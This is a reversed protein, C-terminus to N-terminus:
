RTVEMWRRFMDNLPDRRAEIEAADAFRLVGRDPTPWQALGDPDAFRFGSADKVKAGRHLVARVGGKREVGLTIRDEDGLAFSPANWKIREVLGPHATGAIARLVDIAARTDPPLGELYATVAADDAM